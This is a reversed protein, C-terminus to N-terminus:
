SSLGITIFPFIRGFLFGFPSAPTFFPLIFGVTLLFLTQQYTSVLPSGPPLMYLVSGSQGQNVCRGDELSLLTNCFPATRVLERCFHVVYIPQTYTHRPQPCTTSTTIPQKLLSCYHPQNYLCSVLWIEDGGCYNMSSTARHTPASETQAAGTSRDIQTISM